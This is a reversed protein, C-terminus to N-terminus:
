RPVDAWRRHVVTAGPYALAASRLMRFAARPISRRPGCYCSGDAKVKQGPRQRFGPLCYGSLLVLTQGDNAREIRVSASVSAPERPEYAAAIPVYLTQAFGTVLTDLAFGTRRLLEVMRRLAVSDRDTTTLWIEDAGELPAAVERAQAAALRPLLFLSVVLLLMRM